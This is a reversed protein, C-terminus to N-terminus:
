CALPANLGLFTTQLWEGPLEVTTLLQAGLLAGRIGDVRRGGKMRIDSNRLFVIVM